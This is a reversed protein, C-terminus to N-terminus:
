RKNKKYAQMHKEKNLINKHMWEKMKKSTMKTHIKNMMTYINAKIRMKYKYYVETLWYNPNLFVGSKNEFKLTTTKNDAAMNGVSKIVLNKVQIDTFKRRTIPLGSKLDM